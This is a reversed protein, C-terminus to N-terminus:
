VQGGDKTPRLGARSKSKRKKVLAHAVRRGQPAEDKHFMCKSYFWKEGMCTCGRRELGLAVRGQRTPLNPGRHQLVSVSRARTEGGGTGSLKSRPRCVGRYGLTDRIVPQCSQPVLLHGQQQPPSPGSGREPETAEEHSGVQPKSTSVVPSKWISAKQWGERRGQTISRVGWFQGEGGGGCLFATPFHLHSM